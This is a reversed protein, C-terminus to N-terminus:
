IRTAFVVRRHTADGGGLSTGDCTFLTLDYSRGKFTANALTSIYYTGGTCDDFGSKCLELTTDSTKAFIRTDQVQYTTATGNETITFISGPQFSKIGGLLNDHGYVFKNTKYIQSYSLGKSVISGIPTVQYNPTTSAATRASSKKAVPTTIKATDTIETINEASLTDLKSLTPIEELQLIESSVTTDPISVANAAGDILIGIGFVSLLILFYNKM